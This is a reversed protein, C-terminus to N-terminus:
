HPCPVPGLSGALQGPWNHAAPRPAPLLKLNIGSIVFLASLTAIVPQFRLVAVLLGNVAGVLVGIALLLPVSIDPAGLGAPILLVVFVVNVLNALPGVSLDIGGGGSLIAPTAAISALAFPAFVALTRPWSAPRAFSPLAIANAAFLVLAAVLAFTFTQTRLLRRLERM